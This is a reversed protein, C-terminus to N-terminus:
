TVLILVHHGLILSSLLIWTVSIFIQQLTSFKELNLELITIGDEKGNKNKLDLFYMSLSAEGYPSFCCLGLSPLRLM